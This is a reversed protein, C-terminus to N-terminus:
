CRRKRRSRTCGQRLPRRVCSTTRGGDFQRWRQHLKRKTNSILGGWLTRNWDMSCFLKMRFQGTVESSAARAKRIWPGSMATTLPLIVRESAAGRAGVTSTTGLFPIQSARLGAVITRPISWGSQAVIRMSSLAYAWTKSSESGVFVGRARKRPAISRVGVPFAWPAKWKRDRAVPARMVRWQQISTGIGSVAIM